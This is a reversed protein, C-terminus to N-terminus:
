LLYIAQIIKVLRSTDMVRKIIDGQLSLEGTEELGPDAAGEKLNVEELRITMSSTEWLNVLDELIGRVKDM